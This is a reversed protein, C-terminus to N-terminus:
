GGPLELVRKALINLQIESTGGEISNAKTRLWRRALDGEKADADEGIKLADFGTASMNLEHRRKNLETGYYKLASAKAGVEQGAKAMDKFREVTLMFAWGDVDARASDARMFADSLQGEANRGLTDAAIEGASRTAINSSTDMAGIMEREHNLLYKAVSWGKDVEGVVQDKPATAKDFFTECFPSKGSVLKIPKTSVGPQDMDILLFSIGEHKPAEANTRVLTFIKDCEDAYSTWVKQGTVEYHDGKDVARTQLAALDSGAGPESYGQAWRIEGRAIPPLHEQKQAEDGFKLLAPGLMHIGFSFLPMRANIRRMESKLVKAEERSLGAGGYETPWEPVTWGKEAMRDLWIKQDESSFEFNRGGWCIDQEGDIPQRMSDPCNAELWERVDSRFTDLDSM